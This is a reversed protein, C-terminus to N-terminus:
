AQTSIISGLGNKATSSNNANSVMKNLFDQLTPTSSSSSGGGIASLLNAFDTQLKSANTGTTGTTGAVGGQPGGSPPKLNGNKIATEIDSKTISGTGKTDISNYMKTADASSVGKATLGSMFQDKTVKGTNNPDFDSMMKEAMKSAMKSPNFGSGGSVVTTNISSISM